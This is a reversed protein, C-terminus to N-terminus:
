GVLSHEIESIIAPLASAPLSVAIDWIQDDHGISLTLTDDHASWYVPADASRGIKLAGDLWSTSAVRRVTPLEDARLRVNVEFDNTCVKLGIVAEDQNFEATISTISPAM